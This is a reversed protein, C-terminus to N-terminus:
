ALSDKQEGEKPTSSTWPQAQNVAFHPLGQCWKVHILLNPVQPGSPMSQQQSPMGQPQVVPM